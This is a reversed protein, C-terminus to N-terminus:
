VNTYMLKCWLFYLSCFIVLNQLIVIEFYIKIWLCSSAQVNKEFNQFWNFFMHFFYGCSSLHYNLHFNNNKIKRLFTAVHVCLNQFKFYGFRMDESKIWLSVAWHMFDLLCNGEKKKGTIITIERHKKYIYSSRDQHHYFNIQTGQM